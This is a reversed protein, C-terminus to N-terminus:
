LSFSPMQVLKFADISIFFIPISNYSCNAFSFIHLHAFVLFTLCGSVTM